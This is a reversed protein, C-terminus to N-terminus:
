SRARRRFLKKLERKFEGGVVRWYRPVWVRFLTWVCAIKQGLSLSSRAISKLNEGFLRTRPMIRADEINPDFWETVESDTVNAVRSMGDHWRRKFLPEPLEWIQGEFVIESLLVLDSSHYAGLLRTRRLADIRHLGHVANSLEYNELYTRFRDAPRPSRIDLNDDYATIPEDDADILITKPYVLVVEDTSGELAEVCTAMFTPEILDDDTAWKFYRGRAQHVVENFNWAAGRNEPQPLYRIRQDAEAYRECISRTADTSGNDSIVLEFDEYTQSLIADLAREIFQEGNYVPMGISVTPVRTPTPQTM